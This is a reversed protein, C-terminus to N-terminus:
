FRASVLRPWWVGVLCIVHFTLPRFFVAVVIELLIVLEDFVHDSQGTSAQFRCVPALTDLVVDFADTASSEFSLPKIAAIVVAAGILSISVPNVGM